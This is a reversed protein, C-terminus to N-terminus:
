RKNHCKHSKIEKTVPGITDFDSGMHMPENLCIKPVFMIIVPELIQVKMQTYCLPHPHYLCFQFFM